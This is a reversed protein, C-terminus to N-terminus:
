APPQAGAGGGEGDEDEEEEQAFIREPQTKAYADTFRTFADEKGAHRLISARVDEDAPNKLQGQNKMIYQTLLSGGTTGLKGGAGVTVGAQGQEPKFSKTTRISADEPQKRKGRGGGGGGGGGGPWAERVLPLANPNYIQPQVEAQLLLPKPPTLLSLRFTLSATSSAACCGM